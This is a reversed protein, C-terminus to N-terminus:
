IVASKSMTGYRCKFLFSSCYRAFRAIHFYHAEATVLLQEKSCDTGQWRIQFPGRWLIAIKLIESSCGSCNAYLGVPGPMRLDSPIEYCNPSGGRIDAYVKPGICGSVYISTMNSMEAASLISRNKNTRLSNNESVWVFIRSKSASLCFKVYFQWKLDNLAM